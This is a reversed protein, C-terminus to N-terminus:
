PKGWGGGGPTAVRIITGHPLEVGGAASSLKREEPTDPNVIFIGPLGNEGGEMGPAAAQQREGSVSVTIDDGLARFDRVIGNGGKFQGKGGSGTRLAYTEIRLPYAHELAEVPLNASGSTLTRVADIGDCNTQAGLAGAVTEYDVFYKGTRPDTGSLVLL